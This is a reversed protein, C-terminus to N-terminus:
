GGQRAIQWDWASEGARCGPQDGATTSAYIVTVNADDEKSCNVVALGEQDLPGALSRLQNFPKENDTFGYRTEWAQGQLNNDSSCAGLQVEPTNLPNYLCMGTVRNVIKYTYFPAPGDPTPLTMVRIPRFLWNDDFGSGCSKQLLWVRGSAGGDSGILCRESNKNIIKAVLDALVVRQGPHDGPVEPLDDGLEVQRKDDPEVGVANGGHSEM